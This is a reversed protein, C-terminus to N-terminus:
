DLPEREEYEGQEWRKFTPDTISGYMEQVFQHWDPEITIQQQELVDLFKKFLRWKDSVPLQAIEHILEDVNM